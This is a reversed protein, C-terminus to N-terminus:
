NSSSIPNEDVDQKLCAVWGPWKDLSPLLTEANIYQDRMTSSEVLEEVLKPLMKENQSDYENPDNQLMYEIGSESLEDLM